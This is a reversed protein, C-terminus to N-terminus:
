VPFAQIIIKSANGTLTLPLSGSYPTNSADTGTVTLTYSGLPVNAFSFNGSADATTTAVTISGSVVTVMAGPLPQSSACTQDTCAIATGSLTATVTLTVTVTQGSGSVATGNSDIATITITGTYTGPSLNAAALANV